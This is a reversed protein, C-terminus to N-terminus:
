LVAAWGEPVEPGTYFVATDHDKEAPVRRELEEYDPDHDILIGELPEAGDSRTVQVAVWQNPYRATMEEIITAM